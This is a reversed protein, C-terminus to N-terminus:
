FLQNDKLYCRLRSGKNATACKRLLDYWFLECVGASKIHIHEWLTGDSFLLPKQHRERLYIQRRTRRLHLKMKRRWIVYGRWGTYQEM